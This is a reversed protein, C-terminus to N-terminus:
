ISFSNIILMLAEINETVVYVLCILYIYFSSYSSVFFKYKAHFVNGGLDAHYHM